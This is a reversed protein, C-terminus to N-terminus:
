STRSITIAKMMFNPETEDDPTSFPHKSKPPSMWNPFWRYWKNGDFIYYEGTGTDYRIDVLIKTFYEYEKSEEYILPAQCKNCKIINNTIMKNM